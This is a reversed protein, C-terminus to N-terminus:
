VEPMTYVGPIVSFEFYGDRDTADGVTGDKIYVNAGALPGETLEDLIVGNIKMLNDDDQSFLSPSFLLVIIFLLNYGINKM